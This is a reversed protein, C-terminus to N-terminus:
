RRQEHVLDSIPTTARVRRTPRHRTSDKPAQVLGAAVLAALRDTGVDMPTLRAVPRGHDTVVVQDGARVRELYRSLNNKLERVGVEVSAGSTAVTM